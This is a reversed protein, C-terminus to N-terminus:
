SHASASGTTGGTNDNITFGRCIRLDQQIIITYLV